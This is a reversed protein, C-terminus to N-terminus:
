GPSNQLIIEKITNGTNEDNDISVTIKNKTKPNFDLIITKGDVLIEINLIKRTLSVDKIEINREILSNSNTKPLSVLFFLSQIFYDLLDFTIKVEKELSKREQDALKKEGNEEKYLLHSNTNWRIENIDISIRDFTKVFDQIISEILIEIIFKGIIKITVRVTHYNFEYGLFKTFLMPKGYKVKHTDCGDIKSILEHFYRASTLNTELCNLKSIIILKMIRTFYTSFQEKYETFDYRIEEIVM